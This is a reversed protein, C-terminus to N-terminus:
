DVDAYAPLVTEVATEKEEEEAVGEGGGSQPAAAAKEAKAKERKKKNKKANKGAGPARTTVPEPASYSSSAGVRASPGAPTFSTRKGLVRADYEEWSFLPPATRVQRRGAMNCISRHDKWDKKQCTASCYTEGCNSCRM